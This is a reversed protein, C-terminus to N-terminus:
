NQQLTKGSAFKALLYRVCGQENDRPFELLEMSVFEM